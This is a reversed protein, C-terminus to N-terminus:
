TLNTNSSFNFSYLSVLVTMFRTKNLYAICCIQLITLIKYNPTPFASSIPTPPLPLYLRALNDAKMRSNSISYNTTVLLKPNFSKLPTRDSIYLFTALGDLGPLINM